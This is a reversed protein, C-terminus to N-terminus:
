RTQERAWDCLAGGGPNSICFEILFYEPDKGQIVDPFRRAHSLWETPLTCNILTYYIDQEPSQLEDSAFFAVNDWATRCTIPEVASRLSTGTFNSPTIQVPEPETTQGFFAVIAIFIVVLVRPREGKVPEAGKSVSRCLVCMACTLEFIPIIVNIASLVCSSSSSNLSYQM